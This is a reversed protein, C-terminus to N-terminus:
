GTVVSKRISSLIDNAKMAARAHQQSMHLQHGGPRGLEKRSLQKGTPLSGAYAPRCHEEKGTAPLEEGLVPSINM